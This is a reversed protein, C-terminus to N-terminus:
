GATNEEATTEAAGEEAAGQEEGQAADEAAGTEGYLRKQFADDAVGTQEMGFAAQAKKVAAVTNPGYGGDALGSYYGQERLSRQLRKVLEGISGNSLEAYTAGGETATEGSDNETGAFIHMQFDSDAIGTQEMGLAAQAKKVAEVMMPGYGGDARGKYYGLDQLRRQLRKVAEGTSGNSLTVYGTADAASTAAGEFLKQQFANDAVGTQELGFAAQASRIAEETKPGFTGDVNGTLYGLEILRNQMALVEDSKIGRQLIPYIIEPEPEPEDSELEFLIMETQGNKYTTVVLYAMEEGNTSYQYRKYLMKPTNTTLAIGYNGAIEADMLQYGREVTEGSESRLSVDIVNQPIITAEGTYDKLILEFAAGAEDGQLKYQTSYKNAFDTPRMFGKMTQTFSVTEYPEDTAEVRANGEADIETTYTYSEGYPVIAVVQPGYNTLARGSEAEVVGNEDPMELYEAPVEAQEPDEEAVDASKMDPVPTAEAEAEEGTEGAQEESGDGSEAPAEAGTDEQPETEAEDEEPPVLRKGPIVLGAAEEETEAEEGTGAEEGTEAEEETGAEEGTEAEEGTDAEEGSETKEAPEAQEENEFEDESSVEPFADLEAGTDEQPEEDEDLFLGEGDDEDDSMAWAEPTTEPMPTVVDAVDEATPTPEVPVATTPVDGTRGMFWRYAFIGAVVGLIFFIIIAVILRRRFQARMRRVRAKMAATQKPSYQQKMDTM